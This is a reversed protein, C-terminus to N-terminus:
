LERVKKKCGVILPRKKEKGTRTTRSPERARQVGGERKQPLTLNPINQFETGLAL